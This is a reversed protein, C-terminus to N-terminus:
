GMKILYYRTPTSLFRSIPTIPWFKHNRNCFYLKKTNPCGKLHRANSRQWHQNFPIDYVFIKLDTPLFILDSSIYNKSGCTIKLFKYQDELNPSLSFYHFTSYFYCSLPILMNIKVTLSFKLFILKIHCLSLSKDFVESM